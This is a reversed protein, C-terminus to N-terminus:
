RGFGGGGFGGGGGGGMGGGMFGRMRASEQQYLDWQAADLVTKVEEDTRTRIEEMKAVTEQRKAAREEPPIDQDRMARWLAGIENMTRQAIKQMQEKQQPSLNARQAFADILGSAMRNGREEDRKQEYAKM